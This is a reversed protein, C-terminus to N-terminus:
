SIKEILKAKSSAKLEALENDKKALETQLENRTNSKALEVADNKEKEALKLRNEIDQNFQQDRVQKLIDAYGANDVKFAKHCNPCIIDNM